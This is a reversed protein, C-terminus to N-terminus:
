LTAGESGQGVEDGWTLLVGDQSMHVTGLCERILSADALVYRSQGGFATGPDQAFAAQHVPLTPVRVIGLVEFSPTVPWSVM